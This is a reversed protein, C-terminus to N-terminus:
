ICAPGNSSNEAGNLVEVVVVNDVAVDLWLIDQVACFGLVCVNYQYIEANCLVEFGIVLQKGVHTAAIPVSSRLNQAFLSM